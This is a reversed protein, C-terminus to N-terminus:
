ARSSTADKRCMASAADRGVQPVGWHRSITAACGSPAAACLAVIQDRHADAHVQGRRQPRDGGVVRRSADLGLSVGQLVDGSSRMAAACLFSLRPSRPDPMTGRSRPRARSLDGGRRRRGDGRRNFRGRVDQGPPARHRETAVKRVFTMDHEVAVVTMGDTLLSRLVRRDCPRGPRCAPPRSTWFCSSHGRARRWASKSGNSKAM